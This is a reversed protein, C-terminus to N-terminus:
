CNVAPAIHKALLFGAKDRPLSFAQRQIVLQPSGFVGNRAYFDPM